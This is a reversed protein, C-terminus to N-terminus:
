LVKPIRMPFRRKILAENLGTALIIAAIVDVIYHQKVLVTSISILIALILVFWALTPKYRQVFFYSLFVFSVHISPFCNSPEDISYILNVLWNGAYDSLPPRLTYHVPFVLFLAYHILSAILFIWVMKIVQGKNPPTLLVLPPIFYVTIYIWMMWPIFPISAEGPLFLTTPTLYLSTLFQIGKYTIAFYFAFLVVVLLRKQFPM